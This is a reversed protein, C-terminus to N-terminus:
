SETRPTAAGREATDRRARRAGRRLPRLGRLAIAHVIWTLPLLARIAGSAAPDERLRRRAARGHRAFDAAEWDASVSDAHQRYLRGVSPISRIRGRLALSVGLVWDDGGDGAGYGGGALAAERRFLCAGTTPYLSWATHAAAYARPWTAMWRTWPRPWHHRRGSPLEDIQAYVAVTRPDGALAEYLASLTGPPMVDDADWVLVLPTEATRLGLNRAGGVTLRVESRVIVVGDRPAVPPDSANDIVLIRTTLDQDERISALAEDLLRGAYADWAPILVTVDPSSVM